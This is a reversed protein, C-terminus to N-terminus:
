KMEPESWNPFSNESATLIVGTFINSPNETETLLSFVDNAALETPETKPKQQTFSVNAVFISFLLLFINKM